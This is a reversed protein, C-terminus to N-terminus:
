SSSGASSKVGPKSKRQGLLVPLQEAGCEPCRPANALPFGCRQVVCRHQAFRRRIRPRRVACVWAWRGFAVVGAWFITNLIFGSWIPKLPLIRHIRGWWDVEMMWPLRISWISEKIPTNNPGERIGDAGYMALFPLGTAQEIYTVNRQAQAATPEGFWGPHHLKSDMPIPTYPYKYVLSWFPPTAVTEGNEPTPREDQASIAILQIFPAPEFLLSVDDVFWRRPALRQPPHYGQLPRRHFFPSLWREASFRGDDTKVPPWTDIALYPHLIAVSWSICLTVVMGIVVYVGARPASRRALSLLRM